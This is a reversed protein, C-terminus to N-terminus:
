SRNRAGEPGAEGEIQKRPIVDMERRREDKARSKMLQHMGWREPGRGFRAGVRVKGKDRGTRKQPATKM